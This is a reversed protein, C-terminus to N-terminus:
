DITQNLRCAILWWSDAVKVPPCGPVEQWPDSPAQGKWCSDKNCVLALQLYTHPRPFQESNHSSLCAVDEMKKCDYRTKEKIANLSQLIKVEIVLTERQENSPTSSIVIDARIGIGMGKEKIANKECWWKYLPEANVKWERENLQSCVAFYAEWTFWKEFNHWDNQLLGLETTKSEFWKRIIQFVDTCIDM